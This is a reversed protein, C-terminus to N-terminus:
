TRYSVVLFLCACRKRTIELSPATPQCSTHVLRKQNKLVWINGSWRLRWEHKCRVSGASGRRRRFGASPVRASKRAPDSDRQDRGEGRAPSIEVFIAIM